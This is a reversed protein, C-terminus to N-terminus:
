KNYGLKKVRNLDYAIKGYDIYPSNRSAFVEEQKLEEYHTGIKKACFERFEAPHNTFYRECSLHFCFANDLRWRLYLCERSIIHGWVFPDYDREGGKGCDAECKGRSTVLSRALNDLHAKKPLLARM